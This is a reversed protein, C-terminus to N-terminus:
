RRPLCRPRWPRRPMWGALAPMVTLWDFASSSRQRVITHQCRSMSRETAELADRALGPDAATVAADRLAGGVGAEILSLGTDGVIWHPGPEDRTAKELTARSEAVNRVTEATNGLLAYGRSLHLFGLARAWGSDEAVSLLTRAHGVASEGDHELRALANMDCLITVALETDDCCWAWRLGRDYFAM